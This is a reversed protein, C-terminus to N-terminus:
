KEVFVAANYKRAWSEPNHVDENGGDVLDVALADCLEVELRSDPVFPSVLEGPITEIKWGWLEDGDEPLDIFTPSVIASRGEILIIHKMDNRYLEFPTIKESGCLLYFSRM